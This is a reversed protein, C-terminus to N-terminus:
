DLRPAPGEWGVTLENPARRSRAVERPPAGDFTAHFLRTPGERRGKSVFFALGRRGPDWSRDGLERVSAYAGAERFLTREAARAEFSLLVLSRAGPPEDRELLLHDRLPSWRLPESADREHVSRVCGAELDLLHLSGEEGRRAALAWLRNGSLEWLALPELLRKGDPGLLHSHSGSLCSSGWDTSHTELVFRGHPLRATSGCGAALLGLLLARKM